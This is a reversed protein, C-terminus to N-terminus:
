SAEGIHVVRESRDELINLFTELIDLDECFEVKQIDNHDVWLVKYM